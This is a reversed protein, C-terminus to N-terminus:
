RTSPEPSEEFLFSIDLEADGESNETDNSPSQLNERTSPEPSEEFLFSIDSEADGESHETDNSPSQLNERTSPEPIIEDSPSIVNIKIMSDTSQLSEVTSSTPDEEFSVYKNLALLELHLLANRKSRIFNLCRRFERASEETMHIKQMM